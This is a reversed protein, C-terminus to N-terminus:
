DSSSIATFSHAGNRRVVRLQIDGPVASAPDTFGRARWRTIVGDTPSSVLAGGPLSVQVYTQAASGSDNPAVDLPSGVTVAAHASPVAVTLPLLTVLVLRGFM